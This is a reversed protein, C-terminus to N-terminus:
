FEILPAEEGAKRPLPADDLLGYAPQRAAPSASAAAPAAAEDVGGDFDASPASGFQVGSPSAAVGGSTGAAGARPSAATETHEELVNNLTDFAELGAALAGEDPDQYDGILGRLQAQM